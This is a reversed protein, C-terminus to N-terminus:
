SGIPVTIARASHQGLCEKDCCNPPDRPPETHKWSIPDGLLSDKIGQILPQSSKISKSITGTSVESSKQDLCEFSCDEDWFQAKGAREFYWSRIICIHCRVEGIAILEGEESIAKM